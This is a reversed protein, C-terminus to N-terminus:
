KKLIWKLTMKGSPERLPRKAEPKGVLVKYTNKRKGMCVVNGLWRVRRSKIM